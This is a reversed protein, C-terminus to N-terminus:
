EIELFKDAYTSTKSVIDDRLAAALKVRGGHKGIDLGHKYARGLQIADENNINNRKKHARYLAEIFRNYEAMNKIDGLCKQVTTFWEKKAQKILHNLWKWEKNDELDLNADAAYQALIDVDIDKAAEWQSYGDDYMVEVQITKGKCRHGKIGVAEAYRLYQKAWAWGPSDLLGQTRAYEALEYPIEGKLYCLKQKTTSEDNWQVEVKIRSGVGEHGVICKFYGLENEGKGNERMIEEETM